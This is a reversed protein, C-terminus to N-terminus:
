EWGRSADVRSLYDIVRDRSGPRALAARLHAARHRRPSNWPEASTLTPALDLLTPEGDVLPWECVTVFGGVARWQSVWREAHFLVAVSGVAM